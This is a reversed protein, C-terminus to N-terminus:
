PQTGPIVTLTLTSVYTGSATGAPLNLEIDLTGQSAITGRGAYGFNVTKATDLANNSTWAAGAPNQAVYANNAFYGINGISLGWQTQIVNYAKTVKLNSAAITNPGSTFNSAVVQINFNARNSETDQYCIAFSGTATGATGATPAVTEGLTVANCFTAAFTGGDTVIVTASETDDAMTVPASIMTAMAIAVALGRLINKLKM